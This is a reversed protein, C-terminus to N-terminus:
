KQGKKERQGDYGFHQFFQLEMVGVFSRKAKGELPLKSDTHLLARGGEDRGTVRMARWCGMYNRANRELSSM